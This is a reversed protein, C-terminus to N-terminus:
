VAKNNTADCVSLILRVFSCGEIPAFKAVQCQFFITVVSMIIGDAAIVVFM